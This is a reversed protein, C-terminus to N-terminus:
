QGAGAGTDKQMESASVVKVKTGDDLAYAGTTVVQQGASVGSLIQVADADRVGTKVVTHHAAGDAGIVMVTENGNSDKLLAGPPIILTNSITPADMTVHVPTGPKLTGKANPIRVWVEITTSGPDLAPSILSIKGNVSDKLGPVTIAADAGIKLTQAQAQAIHVKALLVSTDMVTVLPSGAAATEGAYLPRETVVGAIPTRIESYSLSAEAAVYKGKASELQGQASKLAAQRSVSKMGVLRKKAADYAAQAQVLAAHSTDLDRGAIAGQTFLQKRSDYINQNLDLNAKTQAVDLEAQQYAEPVQAKTTTQYAAEAATYTGQSDLASGQLDRNELVAVLQGAKVKSGRQVYFKKVPATFKPEIAAQTIPSLVADAEIHPTVSGSVVTAAEVNVIPTPTAEQPASCGSLFLLLAMGGALPFGLSFWPSRTADPKVQM